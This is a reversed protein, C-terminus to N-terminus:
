QLHNLCGTATIKRLAIFCCLIVSELKVNIWTVYLIAPFKSLNWYHLEYAALLWGNDLSYLKLVGQGCCLLIRHQNYSIHKKIIRCTWQSNASARHAASNAVPMVRQTYVADAQGFKKTQWYSFLFFSVCESTLIIIFTNKHYETNWEALPTETEQSTYYDEQM